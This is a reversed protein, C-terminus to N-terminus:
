STISIISCSCIMTCSFSASTFLSLLSNSSLPIAASAKIHHTSTNLILICFIYIERSLKRVVSGKEGDLVDEVVDGINLKVKLNVAMLLKMQM